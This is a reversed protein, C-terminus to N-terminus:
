KKLDKNSQHNHALDEAFIDEFIHWIALFLAAIIPGIIFGSLGFMGLGGLTSLLVMLDHMKIDKGVVMPRVLNDVSSIILGGVGVVVLASIWHGQLLLTLAVPAWIIATGVAPILSGFVMLVGLFVPSRMGVAWFLLAGIFGQIIGIVLFGKLTGKSVSVFKEILIREYEDKLPSWRTLRQLFKPGDIYFYFMIFLMLFFSLLNDAFSLSIDASHQIVFKITTQVSGFALNTLNQANFQHLLGPFRDQLTHILGEMRTRWLNVDVASYFAVAERYAAAGVGIIPLVLVMVLSLITLLAAPTRKGTKKLLWQYYPYSLGSFIAALFIPMLFNRLMYLFIVTVILLYGLFASKQFTTNYERKKRPESM